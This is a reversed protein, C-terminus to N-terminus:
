KLEAIEVSLAIWKIVSNLSARFSTSDESNICIILKSENLKITM